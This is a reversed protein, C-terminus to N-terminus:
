ALAEEGFAGVNFRAAPGAGCFKPPQRRAVAFPGM